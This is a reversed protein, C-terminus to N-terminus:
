RCRWFQRELIALRVLEASIEARFRGADVPYGQTPRLGPLRAAWFRNFRVMALERVYKSVMSALAVPLYAEGRPLFQVECVGIRYASLEASERVCSILVEDLCDALLLDYRNRGGHKDCWAIAPRGNAREVAYRLLSLSVRSLADAKNEHRDILENFRSPEVVATRIECLRIGLESLVGRCREAATFIDDASSDHPVPLDDDAYWPAGDMGHDIQGTLRERLLRDSAPLSDCCLALATLVGKELATMGKGPQFVVKSDALHLRADGATPENTIVQSLARWLNIRPSSEPVEWITATVVYPGLNPGLGAEDIGIQFAM